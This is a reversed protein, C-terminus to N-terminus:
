FIFDSETLTTMDVGRLEISDGEGWWGQESTWIITDAGRQEMYIDNGDGSGPGDLLDAFNTVATESLDIRDQEEDEALSDMGFARIIDNGHFESGHSNSFVFTDAGIGGYIEDDGEGGIFTYNGRYSDGSNQAKLTDDGKGGDLIDNGGGGVLLDDGDEGYLQDNGRGGYLRDNGIGGFLRDDGWDGWLRDNGNEGFLWDHGDGGWLYDNGGGGYLRDHGGKGNLFDIGGFGWVYDKLISGSFNDSADTLYTYVPGFHGGPPPILHSHFDFKFM